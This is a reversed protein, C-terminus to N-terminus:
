VIVTKTAGHKRARLMPFDALCHARRTKLFSFRKAFTPLSFSRKWTKLTDRPPSNDVSKHLRWANKGSKGQAFAAGGSVTTRFQLTLFIRGRWKALSLRAQILSRRFTSLSLQRWRARRPFHRPANGNQFGNTVQKSSSKGRM